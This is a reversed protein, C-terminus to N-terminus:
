LERQHLCRTSEEANRDTPRSTQDRVEHNQWSTDFSTAELFQHTAAVPM